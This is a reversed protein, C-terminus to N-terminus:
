DITSNDDVLKYVRIWEVNFTCNEENRLESETPSMGDIARWSQDEMNIIIDMEKSLGTGDTYNYPDIMSKGSTTRVKEGDVYYELHWPDRWYVGVRHYDNRWVTNNRTFWSGDDMPQYDQFPDRIFVHHSLHLYTDGYFQRNNDGTNRAGGYAEIIDIEQTDDASLMWVDSAMTSASLKAYAEVYAPYSVRQKSTICGSYTAQMEETREGCTVSMMPASDPRSAKIKLKSDVVWVHDHQWYTPSPGTWTNHYYDSWKANFESGKNDSPASYDFEDSSSQLQWVKGSEPTVPVPYAAWEYRTEQDYVDIYKLYKLTSNDAKMTIDYTGVQLFQYEAKGDEAVLTVNEHGDSSLIWEVNQINGSSVDKFIVTSGLEVENLAVNNNTLKKGALTAEFKAVVAKDESGSNIDLSLADCSILMPAFLSFLLIHIM